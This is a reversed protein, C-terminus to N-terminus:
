VKDRDDLGGKKFRVLSKWSYYEEKSIETWGSEGDSESARFFRNIKIKHQEGNKMKLAYFIGVTDFDGNKKIQIKKRVPM